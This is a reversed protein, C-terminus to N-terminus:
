VGVWEVERGEFEGVSPCRAKLPGLAEGGMSAQCPWGRSCICSSGHTGGYTSKPQHNLEQSSQPSPSTQNTSTTRGIPNCVGETGETRERVRGHPGCSWNLPQSRADVETFTLSQCLRELSMLSRDTHV